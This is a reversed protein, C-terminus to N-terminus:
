RRKKKPHPGGFGLGREIGELAMRSRNTGRGQEDNRPRASQAACPDLRSLVGDLEDLSGYRIILKGRGKANHRISVEAGIRESLERELRLADGDKGIAAPRKRSAPEQLRRALAEAQRATMGQQVIRRAADSQVGAPLSLLARAHGMDLAGDNLMERVAPELNLLRLANAVASRSKGVSQAMEEQTLGFEDRLRQLAGAEELPNLDERQLNEVLAMVSAQRDTVPKVVAPVSALGALRAARWRREGAVLEYGGQARPRVLVPQMLGQAKISEALEALSAEDFSRRPQYRGPHIDTLPLASQDSSDPPTALEEGLLANLGRGLPKRSM